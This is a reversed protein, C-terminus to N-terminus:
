HARKKELAELRAELEAVRQALVFTEVAMRVSGAHPWNAERMATQLEEETLHGM